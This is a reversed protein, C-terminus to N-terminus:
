DTYSFVPLFALQSSLRFLSPPSPLTRWCLMPCQAGSCEKKIIGRGVGKAIRDYPIGDHRPTRPTISVCGAALAGFDTGDEPEGLPPDGGLQYESLGAKAPLLKDLYIRKGLRTIQYGRLEALPVYPANVNLLTEPPLGNDLM